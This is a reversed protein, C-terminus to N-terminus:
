SIILWTAALIAFAIIMRDFLIQNTHKLLKVGIVSGFVTLPFLFLFLAITEWTIINIAVFVPLKFINVVFFFWAATGMLRYKPMGLLVFYIAMLPGASNGIVTCIGALLGIAVALFQNSHLEDWRFRRRMLDLTILCILLGGLFPRVFSNTVLHLILAGIGIGIFVHPLLRKLLSLDAHQRYHLVAFTDGVILFPLLLGISIKAPVFAALLAAVAIGLAPIGTKAVGALFACLGIVILSALDWNSFVSLM